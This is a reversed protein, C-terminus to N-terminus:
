RQMDGPMTEQRCVEAVADLILLVVGSSIWFDAMNFAFWHIGATHLDLFDTVAGDVSRDVLNGLAGGTILSFGLRQLTATARLALFAVLITLGAQVTLLAALSAPSGAQFMSFSIGRNYHLALDVFPIAGRVDGEALWAVALAKMVLDILAAAVIVTAMSSAGPFPAKIHSSM